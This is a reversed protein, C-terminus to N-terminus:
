DISIADIWEKARMVDTLYRESASSYHTDYNTIKTEDQHVHVAAKCRIGRENRLEVTAEPFMELYGVRWGYNALTRPVIERFAKHVEFNQAKFGHLNVMIKFVGGDEIEGLAKKLSTEWRQVDDLSVLGSIQTTLLKTAKNWNSETTIM